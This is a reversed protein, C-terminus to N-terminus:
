RKNMNLIMILQILNQNKYYELCSYSVIDLNLKNGEVHYLYQNFLSIYLQYIVTHENACCRVGLISNDFVMKMVVLPLGLIM